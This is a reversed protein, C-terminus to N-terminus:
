YVQSVFELGAGKVVALGRAGGEVLLYIASLPLKIVRKLHLTMQVLIILIRFKLVPQELFLVMLFEKGLIQIVGTFNLQLALRPNTSHDEIRAITSSILRFVEYFLNSIEFVIVLMMEFEHAFGLLIIVKGNFLM